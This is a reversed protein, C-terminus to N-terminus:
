KTKRKLEENNLEIIKSYYAIVKRTTIPKNLESIYELNLALEIGKASISEGNYIMGGYRSIINLTLQNELLVIPM